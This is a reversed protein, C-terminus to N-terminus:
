PSEIKMKLPFAELQHSLSLQNETYMSQATFYTFNCQIVVLFNYSLRYGFARNKEHTQHIKHSIVINSEITVPLVQLFYYNIIIIYTGFIDRTQQFTMYVTVIKSRWKRRKEKINQGRGRLNKNRKSVIFVYVEIM